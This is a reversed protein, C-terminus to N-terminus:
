PYEIPYQKNIIASFQFYGLYEGISSHIFLIYYLLTNMVIFHNCPIIYLRMNIIIFIITLVWMNVPLLLEAYILLFDPGWFM